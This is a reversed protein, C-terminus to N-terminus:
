TTAAHEQRRALVRRQKAARAEIQDFSPGAVDGTTVYAALAAVSQHRFLDLVSLDRGVRGALARHVQVLGFSSAGLDFFNDHVGVSGLHLVEDLVAAITREADTRPAVYAIRLEPRGGDPAPLRDRDVKGNETLPLEALPAFAQPVMYAPLRHALYERLEDSAPADGHRAVVYGVLRAEGDGDKRAIVIADRLAPHERLAAQVEGLEIRYGRIKVQDDTRGLFELMGEARARVRDGTRYLRAGPVGGFPDPVFREATLGPRGVYGRAVGAGGIYLEGALGAPVPEGRKDLVYLQTNAIPRGIPVPGADPDDAAVTYTCCGVVTETPGYENVLATAPAAERWTRLDEAALAEGGIVLARTRGALREPPLQTALVALHAPTIKVLSLDNAEALARGLADIGEPVFHVPRGAVLPLLLGTLTLDFALSSHVLAGGGEAAAYAETAWAVYNALGGHTVMVGKPRGTSGSTYIVYALEAPTPTAPEPATAAGAAEADLRVHVGAPLGDALAGRTVIVRVGADAVIFALRDAPYTPDLPVYAGGAKLIGLVGVLLDPTREVCLGVPTERGVGAARLRGALAGARRELEAFTVREAGCTVAIADPTKAAQVAIREHVFPAQGGDTPGASWELLQRSREGPALLPLADIHRDPEDLAADLLTAFRGMMRAVTAGDFLDSNYQVKARLGEPADFLLMTLDCPATGPDIDLPAMAVRMIKPLPYLLFMVQFFPDHALSRVPQLESVLMEFPLDQNAYAGLAMERVRTVVERFTPNGKLSTRMVLTNLLPGILRETEVRSRTAIPSGVAVDDQGSYRYLLTQFAALLVMYPTASEAQGLAKVKERTAPALDFRHTAGRHSKVPPRPRDTPLELAPSLGALHTKWYGLQQALVDGTVSERQWAAVDAYQIPLPELPSPKGELFALYLAFLEATLVAGSWGDFVFHHFVLLLDHKEPELRIVTARMLPGSALDFPQQTVATIVREREAELEAGSLGRLDVFPLPRPEFPAIQQTPMGDVLAVTTRLIEHRAVIEDLAKELVGVDLPGTSRSVSALNLAPNAPMLQDLFWLREQVFSLPLPKDRPVPVIATAAPALEDRAADVYQAIAAVTPTEFLKGVPVHVQFREVIRAVAQTALLSHGGLDVFRDHVGIGEIGLVQEWMGVIARETESRPAVYRTDLEPRPYMMTGRREQLLAGGDTLLDALMPIKAEAQLVYLGFLDKHAVTINSVDENILMGIAALARSPPTMKDLAGTMFGHTGAVRAAMGVEAWPGWNIALGPRGQARRLRALGDLFGNGAAYPAQGWGGLLPSTSSFLVFFDLPQDLTLAHLHWAGAVKPLMVRQFLDRDIDIMARPQTIGATHVIGGLPPMTARVDAVLKAVVEADAIDGRHYVVTAGRARLAAMADESAPSPESRGTLALNTAGNEVMWKAVALGLGGLGGTVLYSRDSRFAPTGADAARKKVRPVTIAIKGINRRQAMLMFASAADQIPFERVPLPQFTADAFRAMVDRFLEQVLPPNQVALSGLDFAFYALNNRFPYLGLATNKYIDTKSIDVFRGGPRLVELGRTIADGSLANFIVDVGGMATVEDIWALTRSDMVTEVGLSRMLERKEANGVTVLVEAGLWRAIQISCLGIGGAGSHVLLREGKRLHALNVLAHYATLWVTPLTCADAASMDAPKPVVLHMAARAYRGIADAAMAVVEDGVAIGEVDAGIASVRGACESGLFVPGDPIGPYNGTAMLLDRFNLGAATVEIEVEWPELPRRETPLLTLDDLSGPRTVALAFSDAGGALPERRYKLLRPIWRVGGRFAVETEEDAAGLEDALLALDDGVRTPDLDVRTCRTDVHELAITAGVGLYPTQPLCVPQAEEGVAEAGSTVMFLRPPRGGARVMGRVVKTIGFCRELSGMPDDECAPIDTGFHVVGRCRPQDEGLHKKVLDDQEEAPLTDIVVCPEGRAELIEATRAALGGADRILVWRGDEAEDRAARERRSWCVEYLWDDHNYRPAQPARDLRRLQFDSVEAIPAGEDDVLHVDAHLTDGGPQGTLVVHAWFPATPRRHVVIRGCGSPISVGGAQPGSGLVAATTVHFCADLLAPHFEYQEMEGAIQEPIRIRGLAEGEHWWVREVGQFSPGYGYAGAGILRYLDEGGLEVTCASRVDAVSVSTQAAADRPRLSGRAHLIWARDAALDPARGYVEFGYGGGAAPSVVVEVTRTENDPLFLAEEFRVDVLCQPAGGLRAAAALGMEVYATGPVVVTGHIRHDALFAPAAPALTAEFPTVALRSTVRRGILPHSPGTDAEEIAEPAPKASASESSVDYVDEVSTLFYRQRQFSYGPLPVRRRTEDHHLERWDIAAGKMWLRGVAELLTAYAPQEDGAAPLSQVAGAGRPLARNHRAASALTRGPGVELLLREPEELITALGPGFRVAQRLHRGWYAPDTAEGPQIWTGTVNSVYPITPESLRVRAFEACFPAVADEMLASHFAHSVAVRRCAVKKAGLDAELLEIEEKPGAVVCLADGNVAALSLKEGLLAKVDAEPLPVALMAGTPMSQMLRGRAAVLALADELSFVGALCAAVYEGISHGIMAAPQVGWRMWLRALAYEIVFLAQQTIATQNMQGPADTAHGNSPYLISRLDDGTHRKLIECCADVDERFAPETRYLELGMNVYQAGQGPFMFVIPRERPEETSTLVRADPGTLGAIADAADRAVLIRRQQFPRRGVQLTYAVDALDLAPHSALHAALHETMQELATKGRAALVLLHAPRAGATPEPAPPEQVVVHANTGGVGFASVGARRPGGNAAFETLQTPVFFPSNEFDIKPNPEEFHLSPPIAGEKVTLLTKIFGAIGAASNLHGFNTKVSGVACYRAKDTQTRFARTLAAIEVTDGLPTATGHAEVYGMSEPSFNAMGLAAAVVAAQGDESPATYGVKANGDNNVAWGKIVGHITDGDRIADDLRKLVVAGLGSGFMTGKGKADFTRTHGDPSVILNDSYLYGRYQGLSVSVGGALAMDCQYNVLGDCAQCVALLSTSCASQVTFSPGRLNLHYSVRTALYDKENSIQATFFGGFTTLRDLGFRISYGSSGTGAYVGIPKAYTEPDYGANELAEWACELFLRQQPDILEADRPSLGFFLADFHDPDELIAAARVYNPHNVLAPNAGAALVVSEELETISEVGACLNKWYAEVDRAGPFRCSIGIVAIDLSDVDSPNRTNSM